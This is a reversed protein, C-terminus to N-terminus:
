TGDITFNVPFYILSDEAAWPETHKPNEVKAPPLAGPKFRFQRLSRFAADDLIRYGTSKVM